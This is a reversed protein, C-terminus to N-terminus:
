YYKYALAGLPIGFKISVSFYGDKNSSNGRIGNPHATIAGPKGRNNLLLAQNLKEGNLYNAFVKPDIYKTSVDDLYDTLLIRYIVEARISFSPSVDYRVGVGLPFNIQNLKYVKRGPYEAFGQGETRLPQLDVWKKNLQAQPNFHYYGVGALLYPSFTLPYADDVYSGYPYFEGVLLVEYIRSRFSLNREYRGNTTAAVNKLISDYAQVGGFTGELRIAMSNKYVASFYISGCPLTNKINFDQVGKGAIGKSGGLDTFANMAGISAGLEFVMLNESYKNDYLYSQARLNQLAYFFFFLIFFTCKRMGNNIGKAAIDNLRNGTGCEFAKIM